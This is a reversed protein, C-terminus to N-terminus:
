VMALWKLSGVLLKELALCQFVLGIKFPKGGREKQIIDKLQRLALLKDEDFEDFVDDEDPSYDEIKTANIISNIVSIALVTKGTGASGDVLDVYATNRNKMFTFSACISKIIQVAVGNQEGTLSNYPSFKFINDNEIVDLTKTALNKRRLENWLVPFDNRYKQRDYYDHSAQQGKNKNLITKFRGDVTFYKILRQEYDLIVSKNFQKDFVIEIVNLSKKEDNKLHQSMRYAASTTEGIYIAKDNHILYVVPWDNGDQSNQLEELGSEDFSYARVESLM